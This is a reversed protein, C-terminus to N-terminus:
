RRGPVRFNTRSGVAQRGYARLAAEIVATLTVGEHAARARAAAVVRPPLRLALLERAADPAPLATPLARDTLGYRRMRAIHERQADLVELDTLPAAAATATM